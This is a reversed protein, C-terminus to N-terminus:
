KGKERKEAFAELVGREIERVDQFLGHAKKQPVKRLKFAFELSQYNLGVFGGMPHVNWQTQMELFMCVAEWNEEFVRFTAAEKAQRKL